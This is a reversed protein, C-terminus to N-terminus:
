RRLGLQETLFAALDVIARDGLQHDAGPYDLRTAAPAAASVEDAVEPTVYDDDGAWQLLVHDGLRAVHDVPDLGAFLAAYDTRAQGELELWYTAFWNGWTADLAQLAVVSVRHDQDALLSGYMAGYDHGVVAIRRPDVARQDALRDLVREYAALQARVRTVDGATGDPDVAWPFGGEPLISVVGKGAMSVAQSLFESRDNHVHGLWHLWLVGAMSHRRVPGTPAVIWAQVPDQHPVRVTVDKISVTPAHHHVHRAPAAATRATAATRASATGTASATGAAALATAPVLAALLALAPLRRFPLLKM